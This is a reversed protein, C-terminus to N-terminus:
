VANNPFSRGIGWIVRVGGRGGIGPSGQALGSSFSGGAGGGYVGGDPRSFRGQGNSGGSGGGGIPGWSSDADGRRGSDGIGNLGVGGGGGGWQNSVIADDGGGGAGGTGATPSAGNGSGVGGPGAYGGAGGGGGARNSYSQRAAGGPYGVGGVPTGGPTTTAGSSMGGGATLWAGFSSSQDARGVVVPIVDGPTVPIDNMYCLAGGSGGSSASNNDLRGSGGGGVCVACVSTVGPPVTFNYTGAVAYTIQGSAALTSFAVDDSWASLGYLTGRHRVRAYYDTASNLGTATIGLKSQINSESSWVLTGSGNEGTRVEWSSSHHTDNGGAGSLQFPSSVLEVSAMSVNNFSITPKAVGITITTFKIAPSWASFGVNVGKYRVRAYYTTNSGLINQVLPYSTLKDTEGSDHVITTFNANTAVQWQSTLHAAVNGAVSYASGELTPTLTVDTADNEPATISPTNPVAVATFSTGPSWPSYGHNAGKYRVRWWYKTMNTLSNPTPVKHTLLDTIDGSSYVTSSFDPVTSIQWQSRSHTDPAGTYAFASGQLTPTISVNGAGEAPALNFPQKIGNLNAQTAFVTPYSYDSWFGVSDKYRCRWYYVRNVSLVDDGAPITVSTVAGELLLTHQVTGSDGYAMVYHEDLVPRAFAVTRFSDTEGGAAPRDVFTVGGNSSSQIKGNEGVIVIFSGEIDCGFLDTSLPGATTRITWSSGYDNSTHVTGDEGVAVANGGEDMAVHFWNITVNGATSRKLWTQGANNSTQIEGNNGVAICNGNNDMAVSRFTNNYSAAPSITSWIVGGNVSRSIQGNAGVALANDGKIACGYYNSSYGGPATASTWAVGKNVSYQIKGSDGVALTIGSGEAGNFAVANFNDSAAPTGNTFTRGGDDTLKVAGSAGVAIGNLGDFFLCDKFASSQGVVAQWSAMFDASTNYVINYFMDDESIQFEAGGQAIGYLSLFDSGTLTPTVSVGTAQDAPTVNVPREVRITDVSTPSTVLAFHEVREEVGPDASFIFRLEITNNGTPIHYIEDRLSADNEVPVVQSINIDNWFDEGIHRYAVHFTGAGTASRRLYLNGTPWQRLTKLPKSYFVDGDTVLAYRNEVQFSTNSLFGSNTTISMPETTRIVTPSLISLVKVEQIFEGAANQLIYTSGAVITATSTVRINDDGSLIETVALPKITRWSFNRNDVFFEVEMGEDTYQWSLPIYRSVILEAANLYESYIVKWEGHGQADVVYLAVEETLTNYWLQGASPTPPEGPAVVPQNGIAEWYYQANHDMSWSKLVKNLTDFWQDGLSPSQPEVPGAIFNIGNSFPGSLVRWLGKNTYEYAIGNNPNTYIDNVQPNSPFAM